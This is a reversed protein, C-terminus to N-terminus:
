RSASLRYALQSRSHAVSVLYLTVPLFYLFSISHFSFLSLILGVAVRRYAHAFCIFTTQCRIISDPHRVPGLAPPSFHIVRVLRRM